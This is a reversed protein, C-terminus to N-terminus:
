PLKQRTFGSDATKCGLMQLSCRHAAPSHMCPCALPSSSGHSTASQANIYGTTRGKAQLGNHQLYSCYHASDATSTRGTQCCCLMPNTLLATAHIFHGNCNAAHVDTSCRHFWSKHKCAVIASSCGCNPCTMCCSRSRYAEEARILMM